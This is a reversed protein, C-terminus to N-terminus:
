CKINYPLNPMNVERLLENIDKIYIPRLKDYIKEGFEKSYSENDELQVVVIYSTIATLISEGNENKLQIEINIECNFISANISDTEPMIFNKHVAISPKGLPGKQELTLKKEKFVLNNIIM